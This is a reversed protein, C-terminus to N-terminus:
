LGTTARDPWSTGVAGLAPSLREGATEYPLRSLNRIQQRQRALLPQAPLGAPEEGVPGSGFAGELEGFLETADVGGGSFETGGPRRQAFGEGAVAQARWGAVGLGDALAGDGGGALAGPLRDGRRQVRYEHGEVGM